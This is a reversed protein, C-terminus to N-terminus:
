EEYGRGPIPARPNNVPCHGPCTATSLRCLACSDYVFYAGVALAGVVAVTILIDDKAM